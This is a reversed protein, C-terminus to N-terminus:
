SSKRLLTPNELDDDFVADVVSARIFDRWNKFAERARKRVTYDNKARQQLATLSKNSVGYKTVLLERLVTIEIWMDETQRFLSHLLKGLNRSHPM